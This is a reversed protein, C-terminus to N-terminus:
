GGEHQVSCQWVARAAGHVTACVCVEPGWAAGSNGSPAACPKFVFPTIRGGGSALAECAVIQPLLFLLYAIVEIVLLPLFPLLLCFLGTARGDVVRYILQGCLDAQKVKHLVGRHLAARLLLSLTSISGVQCCPLGCCM